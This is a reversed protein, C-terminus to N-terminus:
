KLASQIKLLDELPISSLKDATLDSTSKIGYKSLLTQLDQEGIQPSAVTNSYTPIKLTSGVKLNNVDANPNATQLAQVTTGFKKALDNFTDGAKITYASDSSSTNSSPVSQILKLHPVGQADVTQIYLDKQDGNDVIKTNQITNDAGIGKIAEQLIGSPLGITNALTDLQTSLQPSISTIKSKSLLNTITNFSTVADQKQQDLEQNYLQTAQLNKNYETDYAGKANEYTQQGAQVAQSIYANKTNIRGIVAQEQLSLSELRFNMNREAESIGGLYGGQSIEKSSTQKFQNLEEKAQRMADQITNLEENDKVVGQTKRLNDLEKLQDFPTPAATKPALSDKIQQLTQAARTSTSTGVGSTNTNGTTGGTAGTSGTSGTKGYIENLKATTAPGVVGDQALGYQKQFALVAAKTKPGFDGDATIGLLTQLQKVNDNNFVGEKLNGATLSFQSATPTTPANPQPQNTQIKQTLALPSLGGSSTVPKPTADYTSQYLTPGNPAVAQPTFLGSYSNQQQTPDTYYKSLQNVDSIYGGNPNLYEYLQNAEGSNQDQITLRQNPDNPNFALLGNGTGTPNTVYKWTKDVNYDGYQLSTQAQLKDYAAQAQASM